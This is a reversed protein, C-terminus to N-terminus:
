QPAKLKSIYKIIFQLNFDNEDYYINLQQDCIIAFEEKNIKECIEIFHTLIFDDNAEQIYFDIMKQKLEEFSNPKEYFNINYSLEEISSSEFIANYGIDKFTENLSLSSFDLM